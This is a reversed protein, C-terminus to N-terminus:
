GLGLRRRVHAPDLWLDLVASVFIQQRDVTYFVAHYFGRLILRRFPGQYTPGM